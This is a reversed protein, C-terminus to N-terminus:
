RLWGFLSAVAGDHSYNTHSPKTPPPSIGWIESPGPPPGSGWHTWLATCLVYQTCLVAILLEAKLRAFFRDIRRLMTKLNSAEVM